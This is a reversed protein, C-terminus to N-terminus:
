DRASLAASVAAPVFEDVNGGAKLVDLAIQTALPQTLPSQSTIMAIASEIVNM